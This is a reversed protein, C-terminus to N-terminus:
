RRQSVLFGLYFVRAARQRGVVDVVVPRLSSWGLHSSWGPHVCTVSPGPDSLLLRAQGGYHGVALHHRQRSYICVKGDAGSGTKRRSPAPTTGPTATASRGGLQRERSDHHAHLARHRQLQHQGRRALQGCRPIVMVNDMQVNRQYQSSCNGCSRYLKGFDQACFNRIIMTGPGNHQFMKDAAGKAGGNEITMTQSSSSGKLTAADEGVDEWWVNRLTCTGRCHVGDAAPAGLIVNQLTGGNAVEFLPGQGENQGSGGLTGSRHLAEHRRRLHRQGLDDLQRVPQGRRDALHLPDVDRPGGRRAPLAAAAGWSGGRRRRAAADPRAARLM